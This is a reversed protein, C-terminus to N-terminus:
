PSVELPSQTFFIHSAKTGSGQSTIKLDKFNKSHYSLRNNTTLGESWVQYNINILLEHHAGLYNISILHSLISVLWALVVVM